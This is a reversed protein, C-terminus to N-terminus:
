IKISRSVSSTDFDMVFSLFSSFYLERSAVTETKDATARTAQLVGLFSDLFGNDDSELEVSTTFFLLFDELLFVELLTSDFDDSSVLLETSVM